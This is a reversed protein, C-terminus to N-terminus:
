KGWRKLFEVALRVGAGTAGKGFSGPKERTAWAVGAIDLHIWPYDVFNQLFLAANISDGFRQTGINRLDAVESKIFQEYDKYLPMPWIKEGTIKAAAQLKPLLSQTNTFAGILDDGLAVVIAGTLTAFDLVLTPKYKKVYDLADALILRGEADTNIVEITKGSRSRIVDGPKIARGSPLNETAPILGVLNVPLKLEAAAKVIGMVTAAGAMDFKMEEMKDSPKISIGGSDFTIGKGVLGITPALARTKYELIIFKPEEDSGRSVALLGGMKEKEIEGRNLIQVKVNKLERGLRLAHDALHAPTAVNGPHNGLDRVFNVARGLILGKEVGKQVRIKHRPNNLLLEITQIEPIKEETLLNKYATFRYTSLLLSEVLASITEEAESGKPLTRTLLFAVTKIKYKQITTAAAAVAIRLNELTYESKKGLGVLLLRQFSTKIPPVLLFTSGLKGEFDKSALIKSLLGDLAKDLERVQPGLKKEGEFLRVILLETKVQTISKASTLYEM